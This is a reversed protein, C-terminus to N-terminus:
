FISLMLTSARILLICYINLVNQNARPTRV